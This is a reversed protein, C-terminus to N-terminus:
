GYYYEGNQLEGDNYVSNIILQNRETLNNYYGIVRSHGNGGNKCRRLEKKMKKEKKKLIQSKPISTRDFHDPVM